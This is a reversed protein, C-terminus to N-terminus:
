AGVLEGDVHGSGILRYITNRTEVIGEDRSFKQITSTRIRQSGLEPHDVAEGFLVTGEIQWDHIEVEPKDAM